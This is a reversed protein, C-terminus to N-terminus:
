HSRSAARQMDKVETYETELSATPTFSTMIIVDNLSKYEKDVAHMKTGKCIKYQIYHIYYACEDKESSFLLKLGLRTDLIFSHTIRM